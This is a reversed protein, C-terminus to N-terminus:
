QFYGKTGLMLRLVNSFEPDSTFEMRRTRRLQQPQDEVCGRGPCPASTDM